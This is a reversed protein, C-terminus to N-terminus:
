DALDARLRHLREAIQWFEAWREVRAWDFSRAARRQTRLVARVDDRGRPRDALLKYVVLHM